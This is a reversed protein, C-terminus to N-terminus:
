LEVDPYERVLQSFVALEAETLQIDSQIKKAFYRINEKDKRKKDHAKAIEKGSCGPRACREIASWCNTGNGWDHYLLNCGPAPCKIAMGTDHKTFDERCVPCVDKKRDPPVQIALPHFKTKRDDAM